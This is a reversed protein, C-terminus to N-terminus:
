RASTSTLPVHRDPVKVMHPPPNAATSEDANATHMFRYFGIGAFLVLLVLYRQESKRNGSFLALVACGAIAVALMKVDLTLSNFFEM